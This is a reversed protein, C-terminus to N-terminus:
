LVRQTIETEFHSILVFSSVIRQLTPPMAAKPLRKVKLDDLPHWLPLKQQCIAAQVIMNTRTILFRVQL